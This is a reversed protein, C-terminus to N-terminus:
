TCFSSVRFNGSRKGWMCICIICKMIADAKQIIRNLIYGTLLFAFQNQVAEVLEGQTRNPMGSLGM